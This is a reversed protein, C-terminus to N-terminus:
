NLSIHGLGREARLSNAMDAVASLRPPFGRKVLYLIHKVIVQEKNNDLARLNAISDARLPRGARQNSITKQPVRYIAAARQQSLKLDQKLAKIALNVQREKLADLQHQQHPM